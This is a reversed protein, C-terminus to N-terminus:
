VDFLLFILPLLEIIWYKKRICRTYGAHLIAQFLRFVYFTVFRLKMRNIQRNMRHVPVFTGFHSNSLFYGSQWKPVKTGTCGNWVFIKSILCIFYCGKQTYFNSHVSEKFYKLIWDDKELWFSLIGWGIFIWAKLM